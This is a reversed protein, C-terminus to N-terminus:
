RATEEVRASEASVNPTPLHTDIATVAYVYRVGARVTRDVFRSETIVEGTLPTLTADGAEGRLVVYGALDAETNPEWSLSIAGADSTTSLGVPTGPPFDDTPKVCVPMSAEGEVARAGDGRVARVTYCRRRGDLLPVPESFALVTLPTGNVPAESLLPTPAAAAAPDAPDPEIERYVNYRVPGAPAEVAPAAPAADPTPTPEDFPASEIPLERELLFGVMGGAPEWTLSIGEPALRAAVNLPADPITTLPLDIVVGPPGPRGRPNFPVALYYRRLPGEKTTAAATAPAPPPAPARRTSVPAPPIPKAVLSEPTLRDRVMAMAGQAAQPNTGQPAPAPAGPSPTVAAPTRKKADGPEPSPPPLVDVTGVLTGVDLFRGRPPQATGSYGYVEIRSIDAPRTKDINQAPITVTVYVDHGVRRASLHDVADPIHVIPALPPGKKGCGITLAALVLASAIRWSGGGGFTRRPTDVRTHSPSGSDM